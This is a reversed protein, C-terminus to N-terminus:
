WYWLICLSSIIIDLMNIINILVVWLSVFWSIGSSRHECRLCGSRWSEARHQSPKRTSGQRLQLFCWCIESRQIGEEDGSWVPVVKLNSVQVGSVHRSYQRTFNLITWNLCTELWSRLTKFMKDSALPRGERDCDVKALVVKGPIQFLKKKFLEWDSKLYNALCEEM